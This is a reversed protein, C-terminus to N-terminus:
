LLIRAMLPWQLPDLQLLASSRAPQRLQRIEDLTPGFADPLHERQAQLFGVDHVNWQAIVALHQREAHSRHTHPFSNESSIHGSISQRQDLLCITLANGLLHLGHPLRQGLKDATEIPLRHRGPNLIDYLHQFQLLFLCRLQGVLLVLLQRCLLFHGALFNHQTIPCDTDLISNRISAACPPTRLTLSNRQTTTTPIEEAVNPKM